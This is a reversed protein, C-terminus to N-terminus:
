TAARAHGSFVSYQTFTAIVKQQWLGLWTVEFLRRAAARGQM